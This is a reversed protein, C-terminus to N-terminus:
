GGDPVTPATASGCEWRTSSRHFGSCQQLTRSTHPFATRRPRARNRPEIRAFDTSNRPARQNNAVERADAAPDARTACNARPAAHSLSGNLTRCPVGVRSLRLGAGRRGSGCRNRRGDFAGDLGSDSPGCFATPPACGTIAHQGRWARVTPGATADGVHPVNARHCRAFSGM